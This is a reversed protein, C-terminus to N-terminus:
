PQAEPRLSSGTAITADTGAEAIIEGALLRQLRQLHFHEGAAMEAACGRVVSDRANDAVDYYFVQARRKALVALQLAERANLPVLRPRHEMGEPMYTLRWAYESPSLEVPKSECGVANLMAAFKTEELALEEFVNAIGHAGLAHMQEAYERFRQECDRELQLAHASLEGINLPLLRMGMATEKSPRVKVHLLWAVPFHGSFSLQIVSQREAPRSRDLLFGTLIERDRLTLIEGVRCLFAPQLIARKESLM